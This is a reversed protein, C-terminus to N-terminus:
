RFVRNERVSPMVLMQGSAVAPVMETSTEDFTGAAAVLQRQPQQAVQPMFAEPNFPRNVIYVEDELDVQDFLTIVDQSTMRICGYSTPSGITREEATGHIYIYRRYSNWNQHELGRLWIIRSVIPDRGPANPAVIEGTPRRSKFKMGAPQGAGIKAAIEHKGLPTRYSGEESGLGFKSTSIPYHAVYVLRAKTREENAPVERLVVMKQDPVSVYLRNGFRQSSACGTNLVVLVVALLTWQFFAKTCM